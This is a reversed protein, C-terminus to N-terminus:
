LESLLMEIKVVLYGYFLVFNNNCYLVFNSKSIRVYFHGTVIVSDAECASMEM